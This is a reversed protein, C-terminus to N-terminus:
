EVDELLEWVKVKDELRNLKDQLEIFLDDAVMAGAELEATLEDLTDKDLDIERRLTMIEKELKDRM